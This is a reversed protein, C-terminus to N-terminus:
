EEKAEKSKAKKTTTRKKRSKKTAKAPKTASNSEPEKRKPQVGDILEFTAPMVTGDMVEINKGTRKDKYIAM